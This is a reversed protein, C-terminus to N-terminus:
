ERVVLKGRGILKPFESRLSALKGLKYNKTHTRIQKNQEHKSQLQGKPQQTLVYIFLYIFLYIAIVMIVKAAV